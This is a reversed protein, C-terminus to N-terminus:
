QAVDALALSSKWQVQWACGEGAHSSFVSPVSPPGGLICLPASDLSLPSKVAEVGVVPVSPGGPVLRPHWSFISGSCNTSLCPLIIFDRETELRLVSRFYSTLRQLFTPIRFRGAIFRTQVAEEQGTNGCEGM